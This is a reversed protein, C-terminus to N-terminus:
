PYRGMLEVTEIVHPKMAEEVTSRSAGQRLNLSPVRLASLRFFYRHTGDPPCPGRYSLQAFDNLGLVGVKGADLDEALETTGGPIDFLVWHSFSGSPADPDVVILVFSQTGDPAGSWKLAPSINAGGCAYKGPIEGNPEFAASTLMLAAALLGTMSM